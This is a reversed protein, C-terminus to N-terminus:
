LLTMDSRMCLINVDMILIVAHPETDKQTNISHERLSWKDCNIENRQHTQQGQNKTIIKAQYIKTPFCPGVKHDCLIEWVAM